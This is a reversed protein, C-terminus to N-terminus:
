DLIGDLMRLLVEIQKKSYYTVFLLPLVLLKLKRACVPKSDMDFYNDGSLNNCFIM